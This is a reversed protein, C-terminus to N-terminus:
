ASILLRVSSQAEQLAERKGQVEKWLRWLSKPLLPLRWLVRWGMWWGDSCARPFTVPRTSKGLVLLWGLTSWTCLAVSISINSISYGKTPRVFGQAGTRCWLFVIGCRWPRLTSPRHCSKARMALLSCSPKLCWANALLYSFLEEIIGRHLFPFPSHFGPTKTQLIFTWSARGVHLCDVPSISQLEAKMKAWQM